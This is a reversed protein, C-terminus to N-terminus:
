TAAAARRSASPSCRRDASNFFSAAQIADAISLKTWGPAVLASWMSRDRVHHAHHEADLVRNGLM